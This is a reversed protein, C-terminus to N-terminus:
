SFVPPARLQKNTVKFSNLWLSDFNTQNKVPIKPLLLDPYKAIDYNISVLHFSCVECKTISKHIHTKQETCTIHEHNDDFMHFFQIAIPLMFAIFLVLAVIKKGIQKTTNM